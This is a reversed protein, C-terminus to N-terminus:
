FGFDLFGYMRAALCLGCDCRFGGSSFTVSDYLLPVPSHTHGQCHVGAVTVVIAVGDVAVSPTGLSLVEAGAVIIVVIVGCGGCGGVVVASM